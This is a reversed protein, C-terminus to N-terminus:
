EDITARGDLSMSARSEITISAKKYVEVVSSAGAGDFTYASSDFAVAADFAIAM